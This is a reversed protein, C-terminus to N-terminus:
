RDRLAILADKHVRIVKKAAEAIRDKGAKTNASACHGSPTIMERREVKYGYFNDRNQIAM